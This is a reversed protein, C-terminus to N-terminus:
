VVNERKHVSKLMSIVNLICIILLVTIVYVLVPRSWRWCLHSSIGTFGSIKKAADAVAPHLLYVPFAYKQGAEALMQPFTKERGYLILWIFLGIVTICNGLYIERAGQLCYELIGLAIGVTIGAILIRDLGAATRQELKDQKEHILQGTLYFNMGTFLFNRYEMTHYFGGAFGCFEARWLLVVFLIPICCYAAKRIHLKEICFDVAYCYILAPLFWLHARVPSTSNYFAFEKLHEMDTVEKIWTATSEGDLVKMLYEWVCYFLISVAFLKLIHIIKFPIKVTANNNEYYCFYGSVMFFFPVACRALVKIIQGTEGPFSVHICVVLFAAIAKAVDLSKNRM